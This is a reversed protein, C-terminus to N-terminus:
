DEDEESKFWWHATPLSNNIDGINAEVSLTLSESSPNLPILFLQTKNNMM